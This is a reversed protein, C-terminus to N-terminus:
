ELRCKLCRADALPRGEVLRAVWEVLSQGNGDETYFREESLVTHDVGPAIYSHVNVGATEILAENTKVRALLDQTPLGLRPFWGALHEDYAYDIRAFAIDPDHHGSKVFFGPFGSAGMTPDLGEPWASSANGKDWAAIISDIREVDPFAGSADSIATVEADPLRDSVLAAYLPAALSGASEGIVVVNAAGPFTAALHDLAATANVYGKHQVTLGPGYRTATNGIHVDGTCYPVYVVSYDAFPNRENGLDFIGGEVAPGQSVRPQYVGSAPDCTEASFCAGGDELYFMVKQPDAERVWLNFESGDSCQCDGGPVIQEWEQSAAAAGDPSTTATSAPASATEHDEDGGCAALTSALAALVLFLAVSASRRRTM